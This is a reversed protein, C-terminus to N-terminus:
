VKDQRIFLTSDKFKLGLKKWRQKQVPKKQFMWTTQYYHVELCCTNVVSFEKYSLIPFPSKEQQNHM